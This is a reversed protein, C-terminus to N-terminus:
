SRAGFLGRPRVLLILVFLVFEIVPVWTTKLFVPVAGEILGLVLGGALAGLPNGLGGLVVIVFSKLEYAGGSLITFPFLLAILGGAVAALMTGLGFSFALVRAGPIGVLEAAARNGTVARVYWGWRTRQLFLHLAATVLLAAAFAALRAGTVTMGGVHVSGLGYNLNRFNTTFATTGVGIVIMSVAYTALLSSLHPATLVRHVAVAYILLGFALGAAAVLAIGAFPHLGLGTAAYWVGFMGLAIVAGHALNVVRMVGFILTLGMAAVGYVAGILLGDVLSPLLRALAGPPAPAPHPDTGPTAVAAAAAHRDGAHAPPLVAATRGEPPWVVRSVPKGDPGRQWQVYVMEHGTQLGHTEAETSFRTRGFFTTLDTADLARRVAEPDVTGARRVADGLVLGAAYGGAAHYSPADGWAARWAAVFEAGTPGAWARGAARAGEPGFAAQPEWQSPGIVGVAADGLEGFAPEPPAVLLAVFRGAAGKEALQRAFTSGDQFHGGGLIAGPDVQHVKNIFPAFDTTGSAYGESLVVDFGKGEAYAKAGRCVDASFKDNEYVLALRRLDPAGAAVLDVAGNLYRSAPTYLQYVGTCGQQYTSDSAAGTTIMVKGYQEAIVAAASTLGSSYPSVLFDAGDDIALRTYLEQVRDPKSEDDYFRRAFRLASGDALRLGGADNVQRIWLDLGRTQRTSEVSLKGTVSATFGITVTRAGPPLPPRPAADRGDCSALVCALLGAGALGLFPTRLM